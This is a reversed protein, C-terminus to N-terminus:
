DGAKAMGDMYPFRSLQPCVNGGHRGRTSVLHHLMWQRIDSQFPEQIIPLLCAQSEWFPSGRRHLRLRQDLSGLYERTQCEGSVIGSREEGTAEPATLRKLFSQIRESDSKPSTVVSNLLNLEQM